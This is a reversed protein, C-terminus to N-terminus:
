KEQKTDKETKIATHRAAKCKTLFYQRAPYSPRSSSQPNRSYPSSTKGLGHKRWADISGIAEM